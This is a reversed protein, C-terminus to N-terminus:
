LCGKKEPSDSVSECLVCMVLIFFFFSFGILLQADDRLHLKFIREGPALQKLRCRWLFSLCADTPVRLGENADAFSVSAPQDKDGQCCVMLVERAAIKAAM